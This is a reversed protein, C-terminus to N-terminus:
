TRPSFRCARRLTMQLFGHPLGEHADESGAWAAGGLIEIRQAIGAVLHDDAPREVRGAPLRVRLALEDDLGSAHAPNERGVELRDAPGNEVAGVLELEPDHREDARALDVDARAGAGAHQDGVTRGRLVEDGHGLRRDSERQHQLLADLVVLGLEPAAFPRLPTIATLEQEALRDAKDAEAADASVHSPAE